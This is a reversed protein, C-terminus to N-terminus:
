ACNLAEFYAQDTECCVFLARAQRARIALHSLQPVQHKLIVGKVSSPIEETGDAQSLFVIQAGNCAYIDSTEIFTGSATKVGPLGQSIVTM